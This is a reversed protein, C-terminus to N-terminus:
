LKEVSIVEGMEVCYASLRGMGFGDESNIYCGTDVNVFHERVKVGM